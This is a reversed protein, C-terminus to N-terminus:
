KGKGYYKDFIEKRMLYKQIVLEVFADAIMDFKKRTAIKQEETMSNWFQTLNDWATHYDFGDFDFDKRDFDESVWYDQPYRCCICWNPTVRLTGNDYEIHCKDYSLLTEVIKAQTEHDLNEFEIKKKMTQGDKRLVNSEPM